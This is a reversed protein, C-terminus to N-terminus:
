LTDTFASPECNSNTANLTRLRNEGAKTNEYGPTAIVDQALFHGCKVRLNKMSSDFDAVYFRRSSM